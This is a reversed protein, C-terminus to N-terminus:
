LSRSDFDAFSEGSKALEELLPAPTWHAGRQRQLERVREHVNGVGVTDAYWMPGGRHAPFGYGYIYVIDIDSARLAIKEGLIKAGENILAYITRDVIEAAPVARRKIGAKAACARIVEEVVPDPIPKRDGPQYRYWGAGTKQGFRGMECLRDEVLPERLGPTVLHRSEQRIRRGVDLGSLDMTALPGLAMGFNYLAADVDEVRSGEEVLFQAERQYSRYM